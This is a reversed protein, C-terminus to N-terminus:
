SREPKLSARKKAGSKDSKDHDVNESQTSRGPSDTVGPGFRALEGRHLVFREEWEEYSIGMKQANRMRFRRVFFITLPYGAISAPIGIVFGGVLMPWGLQYVMFKMWHILGQTMGLAAAEDLVTSFTAISVADIAYGLLSFFYFGTIYFSYYLPVMTFPNSLWVWAVGIVLHFHLRLARFVVWNVTVLIMQIGVLPTLGWFLGVASALGLEGIPHHSERFHRLIKDDVLSKIYRTFREFM